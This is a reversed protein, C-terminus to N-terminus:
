GEPLVRVLEAFKADVFWIRGEPGLGICTLEGAGTDIRGVEEGDRDFAVIEATAYDSVFIREEGIAIGTPRQLGEDVWAEVTVGTVEAYEALPEHNLPLNRTVSGTSTDM